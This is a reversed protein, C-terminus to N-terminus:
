GQVPKRGLRGSMRVAGLVAIVLAAFWDGAPVRIDWHGPTGVLLVFVLTVWFLGGRGRAGARVAMVGLVWFVVFAALACARLLDYARGNINQLWHTLNWWFSDLAYAVRTLVADPGLVFILLALVAGGIWVWYLRNKDLAEIGSQGIGGLSCCGAVSELWGEYFVPPRRKPGVGVRITGTARIAAGGRGFQARRGM